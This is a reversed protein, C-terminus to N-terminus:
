EYRYRGEESSSRREARSALPSPKGLTRALEVVASLLIRYVGELMLRVAPDLPTPTPHIM